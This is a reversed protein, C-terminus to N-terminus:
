LHHFLDEIKAVIRQQETLPPFPFFSHVITAATYLPKPKTERKELVRQRQSKAKFLAQLDKKGIKDKNFTREHEIPVTSIRIKSIGKKILEFQEPTVEFQTMSNLVSIPIVINGSIIGSSHSNMGINNGSLKLVDGDFTKLLMTPEKLFLLKESAMCAVIFYSTDQKTVFFEM